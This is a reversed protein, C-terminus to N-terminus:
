PNIKIYEKVITNKKGNAGTLEIKVSAKNKIFPIKISFNLNKNPYIRQNNITLVSDKEIVGELNFYEKRTIVKLNQPETIILEPPKIYTWIQFSFYIFFIAFIVIAIFISIKKRIPYVSSPTLGKKFNLNESNEYERRFFAMATDTNLDLFQSYKIIIGKIYTSSSFKNWLSNEIYYLYKKRIKTSREIDELSLNRSLRTKKLLQGVYQM